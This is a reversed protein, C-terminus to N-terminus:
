IGQKALQILVGQQSHGPEKLELPDEPMILDSVCHSKHTTQTLSNTIPLQLSLLFPSFVPYFEPWILDVLCHPRGDLWLPKVTSSIITAGAGALM